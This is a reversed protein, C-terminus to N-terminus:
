TASSIWFFQAGTSFLVTAQNLKDGHRDVVLKITFRTDVEKEEEFM